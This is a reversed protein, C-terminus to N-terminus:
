VEDANSACVFAIQKLKYREAKGKRRGDDQVGRLFWRLVCVGLGYQPVQSDSQQQQQRDQVGSDVPAWSAVPLHNQPKRCVGSGRDRELGIPRQSVLPNYFVM